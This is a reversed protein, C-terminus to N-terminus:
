LCKSYTVVYAVRGFSRSSTDVLWALKHIITENKVTGSQKIRWQSTNLTDSVNNRVTTKAQTQSFVTSFVLLYKSHYFPFGSNSQHSLSIVWFLIPASSVFKSYVCRNISRSRQGSAQVKFVCELHTIRLMQKTKQIPKIIGYLDYTSRMSTYKGGLRVHHASPFTAAKMIWNQFHNESRTELKSFHEKLRLFFLANGFRIFFQSVIVHDNRVPKRYIDDM